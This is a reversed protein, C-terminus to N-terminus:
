KRDFYMRVKKTALDVIWAFMFILLISAVLSKIMSDITVMDFAFLILLRILHVFLFIFLGFSYALYSVFLPSKPFNFGFYIMLKSRILVYPKTLLWDLILTTGRIILTTEVSFGIIYVEGFFTLVNLITLLLFPVMRDIFLKKM